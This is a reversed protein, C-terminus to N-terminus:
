RTSRWGTCSSLTNWGIPNWGIQRHLSGSQTRDRRCGWQQTVWPPYPPAPLRRTYVYACMSIYSHTESLYACHYWTCCVAVCWWVSCCVVWIYTYARTIGHNKTYPAISCPPTSDYSAKDKYTMKRLLARYDTARKRFIMQLKLCGVLRRWGTCPSDIQTPHYVTPHRLHMPHRIKM